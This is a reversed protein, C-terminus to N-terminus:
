LTTIADLSNRAQCKLQLVKKHQILRIILWKPTVTLTALNYLFAVWAFSVGPLQNIELLPVDLGALRNKM